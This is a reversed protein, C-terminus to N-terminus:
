DFDLDSQEPAEPVDSIQIRGAAIARFAKTDNTVIFDANHVIATAVIQTDVKICRRDATAILKEVAEKRSLEAALSASPLDFSPTFFYRQLAILQALRSQDDFGQLYEAAVPAPVMLIEDEESLSRLYRKTREVMAEQGARATQQVGWILAMTDLCIM